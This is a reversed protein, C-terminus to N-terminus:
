FEHARQPGGGFCISSLSSSLQRLGIIACVRILDYCVIIKLFIEAFLFEVGVWVGVGVVLVGVRVAKARVATSSLWNSNPARGIKQTVLGDGDM